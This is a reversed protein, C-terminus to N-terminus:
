FQNSIFDRYTISPEPVTFVDEDLTATIKTLNEHFKFKRSM